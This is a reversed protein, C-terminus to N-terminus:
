RELDALHEAADEASGGEVASMHDNWTAPNWIELHDNAGTVVVDRELNAYRTLVAPVLIRGQRDVDAEAAGSFFFRQLERARRSLPDLAAIRAQVTMVWTERSYVAVVGDLGRTLVVHEGLGDRFRAPLTLRSKEDITHEYTGIFM